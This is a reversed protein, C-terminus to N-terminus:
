ESCGELPVRLDYHAALEESVEVQKSKNGRALELHLGLVQLLALLVELSAARGAELAVVAGRGVGALDALETQTLALEQRRTALAAALNGRERARQAASARSRRQLAM